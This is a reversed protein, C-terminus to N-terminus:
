FRQIPREAGVVAFNLKWVFIAVDGRLRTLHLSFNGGFPLEQTWALSAGRAHASPLLSSSPDYRDTMTEPANPSVHVALDISCNCAPGRESRTCTVVGKTGALRFFEM